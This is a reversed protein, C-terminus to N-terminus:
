PDFRQTGFFLLAFNMVVKPPGFNSVMRWRTLLTLIEPADWPSLCRVRPQFTDVHPAEDPHEWHDKPILSTPGTCSKFRRTNISPELTIEYVKPANGFFVHPKQFNPFICWHYQQHFFDPLSVLQPQYLLKDWQQCPRIYRLHHLIAEMLLIVGGLFSMWRLWGFKSTVDFVVNKKNSTPSPQPPFVLPNPQHTSLSNKEM